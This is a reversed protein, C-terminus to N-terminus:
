FLAGGVLKELIMEQRLNHIDGAYYDVLGTCYLKRAGALAEKGYYGAFSLLNVQIRCGLVKLRECHKVLDAAYFAYREPHAMVPVYGRGLLGFIIEDANISPAVFSHEVLVERGPSAIIEDQLLLGLMFEGMRYEAGADVALSIGEQALRAKLLMLMSEIDRRGNMLAPYAVHPTCTLHQLGLAVLRRIVQVSEDMSRVGDDLRPLLHSHIDRRYDFIFKEHRKFFLM